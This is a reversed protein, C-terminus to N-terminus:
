HAPGSLFILVDRFTILREQMKEHLDVGKIHEPSNELREKELDTSAYQGPNV